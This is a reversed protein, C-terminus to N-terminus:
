AACIAAYSSNPSNGTGPDSTSLRCMIRNVHQEATTAALHYKRHLHIIKDVIEQPVQRPHHKAATSKKALGPRNYKDYEAKWRYFTPRVIGFYRCAQRINGIKEAHTLVRLRRQIEREEVQM